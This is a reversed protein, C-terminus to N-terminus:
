KKIVLPKSCEFSKVDKSFIEFDGGMGTEKRYKNFAGNTVQNFGSFAQGTVEPKYTEPNFDDPGGVIQLDASIAGTM